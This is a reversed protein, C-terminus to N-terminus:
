GGTPASPAWSQRVALDPSYHLTWTQHLMEMREATGSNGVVSVVPPAQQFRRTAVADPSGAPLSTVADNATNSATDGTERPQDAPSQDATTAGGAPAKTAYFLTLVRPAEPDSAPKLPLEYGSQGRRVEVPEGDILTAWLDAGEPLALRLSQVGTALFRLSATHQCEGTAPVITQIDCQTCVARAVGVPAYRTETLTVRNDPQVFRYAAVTRDDSDGPQSPLDAQDVETLPQNDAGTATVHLQQDPAARVVVIGSHRAVGALRPEPVRFEAAKGRPTEILATLHVTGQVYREFTLMWHREGRVPESVSQDALAVEGADTQFRIDKSASEPLFLDLRRFGGGRAEIATRVRTRLAARDLRVVLLTDASLRAPWRAIKLKGSFRTDQYRFGLRERPLNLHAPDLGKIESPTLEFDDGARVLYTGAVAAAKLIRVEPLPLEIGTEDIPWNAVSKQATLALAISQGPAAPRPLTILLHQTGAEASLERWEAPQRNVLVSTPTWEAPLTIEIDFPPRNLSQLSAALQLQPGEPAIELSTLLNALVEREKAEVGFAIAFQENWADYSLSAPPPAPTPRQRARRTRHPLRWRSM